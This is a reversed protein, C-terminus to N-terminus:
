VVTVRGSPTRSLNGRYRGTRDGGRRAPRAPAGPLGGLADRDPALRHPPVGAGRRRRGGSYLADPEAEASAILKVAHDYLTDILIIFRKAENRKQTPGHGSHSRDPHHPVRARHAPLRRRRAAARVARRFSFRAVGMAAEPVRVVRGKVALERPEGSFAGTLREWAMDLAVDADEDRPAYWVPVGALKELRFDTRAELRVM